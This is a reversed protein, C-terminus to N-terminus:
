MRQRRTRKEKKRWNTEKYRQVKKMGGETQKEVKGGKKHGWDGKSGM